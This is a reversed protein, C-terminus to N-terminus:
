TKNPNLKPEQQFERVCFNRGHNVAFEHALWFILAHCTGDGGRKLKAFDEPPFAPEFGGDISLGGKGSFADPSKPFLSFDEQKFPRVAGSSRLRMKRINGIKASAWRNTDTDPNTHFINTNMAAFVAMCASHSHGRHLFNHLNQSLMVHSVRCDRATPQFDTDHHTIFLHAEDEWLFVPRATKRGKDARHEVAHQFLLKWASQVLYGGQVSEKVPFDLIVIKGSLIAEPTINTETCILDYIGRGSIVAAMSTFSTLIGTQTGGYQQKFASTWYDFAEQFLRQDDASGKVANAQAQEIVNSFGPIGQWSKDPKNPTSQAFRRLANMTIPVKAIQFLDFLRRMFDNVSRVWFGDREKAGDAGASAEILSRMLAILDDTLGMPDRPREVEYQLINLKHGSGPTIHVCDAMRGTQHCLKLWRAAEDPKATLVLGGYGAQLYQTALLSGTASTKGSGVAGFILVGESADRIRWVDSDSGEAGFNILPDFDDWELKQPNSIEFLRPDIPAPNPTPPFQPEPPPPTPQPEVPPSGPPAPQKEPVPEKPKPPDEVEADVKAPEDERPKDPSAPAPEVKSYTPPPLDNAKRFREALAAIEGEPVLRKNLYVEICDPALFDWELYVCDRKLGGFIRRVHNRRGYEGDHETFLFYWGHNNKLLANILSAGLTDPAKEWVLKQPPSQLIGALSDLIFNPLAVAVKTDSFGHEANPDAGYQLYEYGKGHNGHFEIRDFRPRESILFHLVLRRGLARPESFMDLSSQGTATSGAVRKGALKKGANGM